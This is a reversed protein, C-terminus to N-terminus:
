EWIFDEGTAEGDSTCILGETKFDVIEIAPTVYVVKDETLEM